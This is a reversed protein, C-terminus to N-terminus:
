LFVPPWEATAPSDIARQVTLCFDAGKKPQNKTQIKAKQKTSKQRKENKTKRKVNKAHAKKGM